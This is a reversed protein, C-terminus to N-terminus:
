NTPIVWRIRELLISGIAKGVEDHAPVYRARRMLVSCTQSDLVPVKSSAVVHCSAPLGADDIRILAVVTGSLEQLLAETPYDNTTAWAGPNGKRQPAGVRQALVETDKDAIAGRMVLWRAIDADGIEWSKLLDIYCTELAALAAKAQTLELRVALSDGSSIGVLQDAGFKDLLGMDSDYWRVFRNTQGPVALSYGKTAQKAGQPELEVTVSVRLPLKPVGPGAIVMDFSGINGGRALRLTIAEQGTGFTRLLRCEDAGYDM